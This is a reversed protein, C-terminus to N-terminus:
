REDDGYYGYDPYQPSLRSGEMREELPRRARGEQVEEHNQGLDDKMMM